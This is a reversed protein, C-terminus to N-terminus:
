RQGEGNATVTRKIVSSPSSGARGSFGQEGPLIPAPHRGQTVRATGVEKPLVEHVGPLIPLIGTRFGGADRESQPHNAPAHRRGDYRRGHRSRM